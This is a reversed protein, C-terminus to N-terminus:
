NARGAGLFRASRNYITTKSGQKIVFFDYIPLFIKRVEENEGLFPTELINKKLSGKRKQHGLINFINYHGETNYGVFLNYSANKGSVERRRVNM